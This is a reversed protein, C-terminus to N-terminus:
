PECSVACISLLGHWVSRSTLLWGHGSNGLRPTVQQCHALIGSEALDFLAVGLQQFAAQQHRRARNGIVVDGSSLQEDLQAGLQRVVQFHDGVNIDVEM